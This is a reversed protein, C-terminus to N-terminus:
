CKYVIIIFLMICLFFYFFYINMAQGQVYRFFTVCLHLFLYIFLYIYLYIMIKTPAKTACGFLTGGYDLLWSNSELCYGLWWHGPTWFLLVPWAWQVPHMAYMREESDTISGQSAARAATWFLDPQSAERIESSAHTLGRRGLCCDYAQFFRNTSSFQGLDYRPSFRSPPTSPPPLPIMM